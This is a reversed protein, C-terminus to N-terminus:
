WTIKAGLKESILGLEVYRIESPDELSTNALIEGETEFPNGVYVRIRELADRGKKRKYPLMGRIARKIIRDPRKPYYPGQDSGIEMRKQFRSLIDQESGTIVAREANIIAVKNGELSLQAIQSSVRGLVCGSADIIRDPQFKRHNM